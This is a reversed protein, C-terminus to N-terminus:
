KRPVPPLPKNGKKKAYQGPKYPVAPLAKGGSRKKQGNQPHNLHNVPRPQQREVPKNGTASPMYDVKPATARQQPDLGKSARAVEKTEKTIKGLEEQPSTVSHRISGIGALDKVTSAITGALASCGPGSGPALANCGASAVVPAIDLLSTGVTRFLAKAADWLCVDPNDNPGVVGLSTISGHRKMMADSLMQMFVGGPSSLDSAISEQIQRVGGVDFFQLRYKCYSVNTIRWIWPCYLVLAAEEPSLPTLSDLADISRNVTALETPTGSSYTNIELKKIECGQQSSWSGLSNNGVNEANVQTLMGLGGRVNNSMPFFTFGRGYSVTGTSAVAALEGLRTAADWPVYLQPPQSGAINAIAKYATIWTTDLTQNSWRFSVSWSGPTTSALAFNFPSAPYTGQSVTNTFQTLVDYWGTPLWQSMFPLNLRGDAVVPGLENLAVGLASHVKMGARLSGPMLTRWAPLTGSTADTANGVEFETRYPQLRVLAALHHWVMFAFMHTATFLPPSGVPVTANSIKAVEVMVSFVAQSYWEMSVPRYIPWFSTLKEGAWNKDRGVNMGLTFNMTRLVMCFYGKMKTFGNVAIINDATVVGGVRNYENPNYPYQVPFIKVPHAPHDEVEDGVYFLHAIEQNVNHFVSGFYANNNTIPGGAGGNWITCYFSGDPADPVEAPMPITPYGTRKIMESYVKSYQPWFDLLTMGAFTSPGPDLIYEGTAVHKNYGYMSYCGMAVNSAVAGGITIYQTTIAPMASVSYTPVATTGGESYRAVYSLWALLPTPVSLGTADPAVFGAFSTLAGQKRFWDLALGLFYLKLAATSLCGSGDGANYAPLAFLEPSYVQLDHVCQDLFVSLEAYTLQQVVTSTPVSLLTAGIRELQKAVSLVQKDSM